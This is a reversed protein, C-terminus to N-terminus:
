FKKNETISNLEDLLEDNIEDHSTIIKDALSTDQPVASPNTIAICYCGAAKASQVGSTADEVVLCEAPNINLKNAVKLFTDPHPKSNTIEDGTIIADFYNNLNLRDLVFGVYKKNFSTGIGLKYGKEKLRKVSNVIGPMGQLETKILHMFIAIKKKVLLDPDIDLHLEEVMEKAIATPKKGAMTTQLTPSLDSLHHNFQQLAKDWTEVHLPESNVMTGDVDYIIAKIM